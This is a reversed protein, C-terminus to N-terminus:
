AIAKFVMDKYFESVSDEGKLSDTLRPLHEAFFRQHHAGEIVTSVLMHPYKYTPNIELILNSVREVLFKYDSYLGKKNEKDVEKTLYSKSSESIVIRNLKEENVHSIDGDTEVQETLLTIARDLRDSASKVNAMAFALRYEMWSWYWTTLYLLLKHKSEFYRYISAETSSIESALKKFTFAEFGIQDIMNISEQVIRKGLDSSEPNKIFIGERVQISIRSLFEEMLLLKPRLYLLKVIVKSRM